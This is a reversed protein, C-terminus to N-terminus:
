GFLVKLVYVWTLCGLIGGFLLAAFIALPVFVWKSLSKLISNPTKHSFDSFWYFDQPRPYLSFGSDRGYLFSWGFDSVKIPPTDGRPRPPASEAIERQPDCYEWRHDGICKCSELPTQTANTYKIMNSAEEVKAPIAPNSGAIVQNVTLRRVAQGYGM